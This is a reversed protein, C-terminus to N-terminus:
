ICTVVYMVSLVNKRFDLGRRLSAKMYLWCLKLIRCSFSLLLLLLYLTLSLSISDARQLTLPHFRPLMIIYNLQGEM